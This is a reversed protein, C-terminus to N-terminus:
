EGRVHGARRFHELVEGPIARMAESAFVSGHDGPVLKVYGVDGAEVHAALEQRLLEVAENLYFSDESGCVLRVRTRYLPVFRAPDTRLLHGLDYGRYAEAVAPDIAGTEPDFLAAPNGRANRPGFVAFWSDWQQGSTNDPGLVDEGRAETRVTMREGDEGRLSPLDNAGDGTYFNKAAYLDVRQFRRFDVPDPATSWTAGFVEPYTLALWLTAWGGSSHGRLVRASPAAILPYRRELAPILEEVLARGCPGNSASDAFLTHGNPGEPDLVIRFSARALELAAGEESRRRRGGAADRHNGGFGPVEYQAPYRRARDHDKPLVVGARLLVDRGRFASLLESRVEFWEVGEVTPLPEPEVVHELLLLVEVPAGKEPVTFAVPESWLNGPERRWRSDLRAGDLRVQARWAGPALQSPRLPFADAADDLVALGRPELRVDRGFIPQPEGWFPGDIPQADARLESGEQVLFVLLRGEVPTSRAEPALTVRFVAGQAAPALALLAPLAARLLLRGPPTM